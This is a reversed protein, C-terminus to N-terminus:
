SEEKSSNISQIKKKFNNWDEDSLWSDSFFYFGVTLTLVGGIWYTLIIFSFSPHLGLITFSPMKGAFVEAYYKSFYFGVSWLVAWSLLPYLFLKKNLKGEKSAGLMMYLLMLIVSSIMGIFWTGVWGSITIFVWLSTIVLFIGTRKDGIKM